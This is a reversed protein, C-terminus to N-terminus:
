PSSLSGSLLMKIAVQRNLSVQRARYIIGMGGRGIEELLEYDGFNRSDATGPCSSILANARAPGSEELSFEVATLPGFGQQFMCNACLGPPAYLSLVAGCKGCTRTESM